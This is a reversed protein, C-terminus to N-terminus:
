KFVELVSTILDINDIADNIKDTVRLHEKEKMISKFKSFNDSNRNLDKFWSSNKKLFDMMKTNKVIEQQIIREM